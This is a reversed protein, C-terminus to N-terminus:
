LTFNEKPNPMQLRLMKAWNDKINNFAEDHENRWAFPKTKLIEYLPKADISFHPIFSRDYNTMGLFRRLTKLNHPKPFRIIAEARDFNPRIENKSIQYGLFNVTQRCFKSKEENIKLGFTKLRKMVENVNNNHEEKTKGFVLIDDIYSYCIKGILNQLVM